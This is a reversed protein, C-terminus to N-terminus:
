AQMEEEIRDLTASTKGTRDYTDVDIQGTVAATILAARYERLRDISINTASRISRHDDGMRALASVVKEQSEMSPVPIELRGLREGNLIPITNLNALTLMESRRAVMAYMMYMSHHHAGKPILGHIQQNFVMRTGAIGIKGVGAGIGNVLVTGKPVPKMGRLGAESVREKTSIVADDERLDVPTAWPMGNEADFNHVDDRSPTTGTQVRYLRHLPQVPLDSPATLKMIRGLRLLNLVEMLRQKKGILEDIRRTERDLFVAIPKQTDILINPFPTEAFKEATFHALTAKSCVLEFYGSSKLHQMWYYAFQVLNGKVPRVRHVSNQFGLHGDVGNLIAARGVDGGELVVLDGNKLLYKNKDDTSFWMEKLDDHSVGHWDINAARLYPILEDSPASASPQLMKGLTLVFHQKFRSQPYAGTWRM